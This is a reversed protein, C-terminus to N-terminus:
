ASGQQHGRSTESGVLGPVDACIPPPARPRKGSGASDSATLDPLAPPGALVAALRAGATRVHLLRAWKGRPGLRTQPLGTSAEPLKWLAVAVSTPRAQPRLSTATTAAVRWLQLYRRNRAGAILQVSVLLDGSNAAKKTNPAAALLGALDGTLWIALSAGEPELVIAEVLQRIAESAESRSDADELARCLETVRQRYVDAM